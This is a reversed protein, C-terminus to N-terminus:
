KHSFSNLFQFLLAFYDVKVISKGLRQGFGLFFPYGVNNTIELFNELNFNNRFKQQSLNKFHTSFSM